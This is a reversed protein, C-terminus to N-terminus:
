YIEQNAVHKIFVLTGSSQTVMFCTTTCCFLKKDLWLEAKASIFNKMLM